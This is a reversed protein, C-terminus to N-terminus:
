VNGRRFIAWAPTLRVYEELGLSEARALTPVAQEHLWAEVEKKPCDTHMALSNALTKRRHAFSAYALDFFDLIESDPLLARSKRRLRIVASTVNPPPVFADPPVERIIEVDAFLQVALSLIGFARSGPGSGMREAVELQVLFVGTQWGPWTFLKEFIPSTISYPLNGLVKIPQEWSALPFLAALDATLFDAQVIRVRPKKTFREALEIALTKDLEVATLAQVRDSLAFTLAGKGPGIELASHHPELEAAALLTQTVTHDRLFHQSFKPKRQSKSVALM